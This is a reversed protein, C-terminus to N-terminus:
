LNGAFQQIALKALEIGSSLSLSSLRQSSGIVLDLKTDDNLNALERLVASCDACVTPFAPDCGSMRNTSGAASANTEM